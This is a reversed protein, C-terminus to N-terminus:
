CWTPMMCLIALILSWSQVKHVSDHNPNPFNPNPLIPDVKTLTSCFTLQQGFNVNPWLEGKKKYKRMYHVSKHNIFPFQHRKKVIQISNSHIHNQYQILQHVQIHVNFANVQFPVSMQIFFHIFWSNVQVHIYSSNFWLISSISQIIFFMSM